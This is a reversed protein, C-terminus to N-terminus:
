NETLTEVCEYSNFTKRTWLRFFTLLSHILHYLRPFHKKAKQTFLFLTNFSKGNLEIILDPICLVPCAHRIHCAMLETTDTFM